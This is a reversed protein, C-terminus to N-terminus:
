WIADYEQISSQGHCEDTCRESGLLNNSSRWPDFSLIDHDSIYYEHYRHDQPFFRHAIEAHSMSCSLALLYYVQGDQLLVKSFVPLHDGLILDKIGSRKYPDYSNRSLRWTIALFVLTDNILPTIITASVFPNNGSKLCLTARNLAPNLVVPKFADVIYALCGGLVALWLCAFFAVVWRNRNFVARTRFFFLLSTFM